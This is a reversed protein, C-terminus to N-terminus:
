DLAMGDRQNYLDFYVQERYLYPLATDYCHIVLSSSHFAPLKEKSLYEIRCQQIHINFLMFAGPQLLISYSNSAGPSLLDIVGFLARLGGDLLSKFQHFFRRDLSWVM